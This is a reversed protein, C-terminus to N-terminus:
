RRRVSLRSLESLSSGCGADPRVCTCQMLTLAAVVRRLVDDAAAHGVRQLSREGGLPVCLGVAREIALAELVAAPAVDLDVQLGM